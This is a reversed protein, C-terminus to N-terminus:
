KGASFRASQRKGEVELSVVAVFSTVDHLAAKGEFRDGAPSLLVDLRGKGPIQVLARGPKGAAPLQKMGDDMLYVLLRDPKVVLEYHHEGVSRVLGGHPAHHDHEGLPHPAHANGHAVAPLASLSFASILAIALHKAKM